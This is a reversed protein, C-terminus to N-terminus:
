DFENGRVLFVGGQAAANNGTGELRYLHRGEAAITIDFYYDGTDNKVLEADVGYVYSTISGGPDIVWKATVTSPDVATGSATFTGGCRIVDGIDYIEAVM